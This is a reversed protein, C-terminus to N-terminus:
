RTPYRRRLDDRTRRAKDPQGMRDYLDALRSLAAPRLDDSAELLEVRLYTQEAKDWQAQAAACDGLALLALAKQRSTEAEELLSAYAASAEDYAKSQMLSDALAERAAAARAHQPHLRLFDRYAGAAREFAKARYACTARLYRLDGAQPHAPHAQLFREAGSEAEAFRAERLAANIDALERTEAEVAARREEADHTRTLSTIAAACAARRAHEPFRALFATFTELAKRSQGAQMEACGRAYLADAALPNSPHAALLADYAAIAGEWQRLAYLAEGRGFWAAAAFTANTTAAADKFRAAAEAHRRALLHAHAERYADAAPDARALGSAALAGLLLIHLMKPM